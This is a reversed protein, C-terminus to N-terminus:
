NSQYKPEIDAAKELETKTGELPILAPERGPCRTIISAVLSQAYLLNLDHLCWVSRHESFRKTIQKVLPPIHVVSHLSNESFKKLSRVDSRM